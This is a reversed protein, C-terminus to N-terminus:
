GRQYSYWECTGLSIMYIDTVFKTIIDIYQKYTNNPIKMTENWWLKYCQIQLTCQEGDGEQMNAGRNPVKIFRRRDM